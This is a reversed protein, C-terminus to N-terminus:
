VRYIGSNFESIVGITSTYVDAHTFIIDFPSWLVNQSKSDQFWFAPLELIRFVNFGAAVYASVSDESTLISAALSALDGSSYETPTAPSPELQCGAIQFRTHVVQTTTRTMTPPSSNEDVTDVNSPWGWNKRSGYTHFLAPSSPASFQRPQNNQVVRVGAVGRTTLGALLTSQLVTQLQSDRM